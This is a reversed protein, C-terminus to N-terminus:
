KVAGKKARDLMIKSLSALLRKLLRKLRRRLSDSVNEQVSQQVSEEVSSLPACMAYRHWVPCSAVCYLTQWLAM